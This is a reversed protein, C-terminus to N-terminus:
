QASPDGEPFVLVVSAGGLPSDTIRLSAGHLAAIDHAISLGLGTGEGEVHQGRAFRQLVIARESIPIGPGSDDVRVTPPHASVHISIRGGAPTYRVANEIVNGVAEAILDSYARVRVPRNHAVLELEINRLLAQDAHAAGVAEVMDVLDIPEAGSMGYARPELRSLALFQQVVRATRRSDRRLEEVVTRISPEDPADAARALGLELSALPTRLQHAANAAFQRERVLMEQIRSLLDNLAQAFPMLEKPVDDTPLPELSIHSQASLRHAMAELPRVTRRVAEIIAIAAAIVLLVMPWFMLILDRQARQRKQLTEAVRVVAVAGSADRVEVSAVRVPHGAVAADYAEGHLYAVARAGGGPLVAKGAVLRNDQSVGYWTTDVDDYLLVAEAAAPLQLRAQGSVFRVQSAVSEAADLLWRDFVRDTLKGAGWTGLTGMALVIVILPLMLRVVLDRTLWQRHPKARM